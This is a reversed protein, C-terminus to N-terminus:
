EGAGEEPECVNAQSSWAATPTVDVHLFYSLCSKKDDSWESSTLTGLQGSLRRRGADSESTLTSNAWAARVNTRPPGVRGRLGRSTADWLM